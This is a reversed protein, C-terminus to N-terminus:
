LTKTKHKPRTSWDAALHELHQKTISLTQRGKPTLSYNRADPGQSASVTNSKLLGTRVMGALIRDPAIAATIPGHRGLREAIAAGTIPKGSAFHLIRVKLFSSKISELEPSANSTPAPTM